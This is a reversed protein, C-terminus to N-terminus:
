EVYSLFYLFQLSLIFNKKFFDYGAEEQLTNSQKERSDRESRVARRERQDRTETVQLGGSVECWRVSWVLDMDGINSDNEFGKSRVLVLLGAGSM